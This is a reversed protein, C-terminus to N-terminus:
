DHRNNGGVREEAAKSWAQARVHAHAATAAAAAAAPTAATAPAHMPPTLRPLSTFPLPTEATPPNKHAILVTAAAGAVAAAVAAVAAAFFAAGFVASATAAAAATVAAHAAPAPPVTFHSMQGLDAMM